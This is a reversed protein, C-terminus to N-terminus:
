PGCYFKHTGLQQPHLYIVRVNSRVAPGGAPVVDVVVVVLALLVLVCVCLSLHPASRLRPQILHPPTTTLHAEQVCERGFVCLSARRM